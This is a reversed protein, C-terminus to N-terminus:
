EIGTSRGPIQLIRKMRCRYVSFLADDVVCLILSGGVSDLFLVDEGFRFEENNLIEVRDGKFEFM